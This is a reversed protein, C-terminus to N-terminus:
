GASLRGQTLEPFTEALGIHLQTGAKSLEQYQKIAADVLLSSIGPTEAIKEYEAILSKNYVNLAIAITKAEELDMVIAEETGTLGNFLEDSDEIKRM